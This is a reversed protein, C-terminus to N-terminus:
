KATTKYLKVVLGVNVGFNFNSIGNIASLTTNYKVTKETLPKNYDWNNQMKLYVASIGATFNIKESMPISAGMGLLGGYAQKFKYKESRAADKKNIGVNFGQLSNFYEDETQSDQDSAHFADRTIVWDNGDIEATPDFYYNNGDYQYVAEYDATSQYKSSAASSLIFVPGCDIYFGTKDTRSTYKLVLNIGVNNMLINESVNYAKYLRMFDSPEAENQGKYALYLTDYKLEAQSHNLFLGAGVGLKKTKGFMLNVDINGSFAAGGKSSFGALSSKSMILSEYNMKSVDPQELAASNGAGSFNFTLSVGPKELPTKEGEANKSVTAGAPQPCEPCSIPNSALKKISAIKAKTYDDSLKLELELVAGQNAIFYQGMYEGSINRQIAIQVTKDPLNEFNVSSNLYKITVGGPFYQEYDVILNDVTKETTNLFKDPFNSPTIDDWVMADEEFMALFAQKKEESIGPVGQKYLKSTKLYHKFFSYVTGAATKRQQLTMGGQAYIVNLVIFVFGFSLIFTKKM